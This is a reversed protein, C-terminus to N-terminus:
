ASPRKFLIDWDSNEISYFGFEIRGMNKIRPMYPTFTYRGRFLKNTESIVWGYHKMSISDTSWIFRHNPLGCSRVFYDMELQQDVPRQAFTYTEPISDYLRETFPVWKDEVTDFISREPAMKNWTCLLTNGKPVGIAENFGIFLSGLTALYDYLIRHEAGNVDILDLISTPFGHTKLWELM